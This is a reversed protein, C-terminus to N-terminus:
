PLYLDSQDESQYDVSGSEVIVNKNNQRALSWLSM